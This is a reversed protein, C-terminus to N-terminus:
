TFTLIQIHILSNLIRVSSEFITLSKISNIQKGIRLQSFDGVFFVLDKELHYHKTIDQIERPDFMSFEDFIWLIRAAANREKIDRRKEELLDYFHGCMSFGKEYNIKFTANLTKAENYFTSSAATPCVILMPFSYYDFLKELFKSQFTKGAGAPLDFAALGMNFGYICSALMIITMSITNELQFVQKAKVEKEPYAYKNFCLDKIKQLYLLWWLRDNSTFVKSSIPKSEFFSMVNEFFNRCFKTVNERTVDVCNDLFYDYFIEFGYHNELEGSNEQEKDASANASSASAFVFTLGIKFTDAKTIDTSSVTESIEKVQLHKIKEDEIVYDFGIFSKTFIPEVKQVKSDSEFQSLPSSEKRKQSQQIQMMM